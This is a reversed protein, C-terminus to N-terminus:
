ILGQPEELCTEKKVKVTTTKKKSKAVTVRKHTEEPQTAVTQCKYEHRHYVISTPINDIGKEEPLILEEKVHVELTDAESKEVQVSSAIVKQAKTARRNRM